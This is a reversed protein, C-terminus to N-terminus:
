RRWGRFVALFAPLPSWVPSGTKATHLLLTRFATSASSEMNASCLASACALWSPGTWYADMGCVVVGSWVTWGRTSRPWWPRTHAGSPPVTTGYTWGRVPPRLTARWARIKPLPDTKFLGHWRPPKCTIRRLPSLWQVLLGSKTLHASAPSCQPARSSRNQFGTLEPHRSAVLPSKIEM